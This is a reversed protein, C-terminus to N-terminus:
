MNCLILTLMEALQDAEMEEYIKKNVPILKRWKYDRMWM